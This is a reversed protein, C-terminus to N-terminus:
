YTQRSRSNGGKVRAGLALMIVIEGDFPTLSPNFCLFDCKCIYSTLIRTLVYLHFFIIGNCLPLYKDDLGLVGDFFKFSSDIDYM